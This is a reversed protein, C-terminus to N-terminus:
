DETCPPGDAEPFFYTSVLNSTANLLLNIRQGLGAVSSQLQHRFIEKGFCIPWGTCSEMRNLSAALEFPMQNQTEMSRFHARAGTEREGRKRACAPTIIVGAANKRARAFFPASRLPLSLYDCLTTECTPPPLLCPFGFLCGYSVM